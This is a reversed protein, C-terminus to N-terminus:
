VIFGDFDNNFQAFTGVTFIFFGKNELCNFEVHPPILFMM